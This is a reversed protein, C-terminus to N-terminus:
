ATYSKCYEIADNVQKLTIDYSSAIFTKPEKKQYLNFITKPFLNTGKITPQGFQHKPDVVVSNKKGMPYLREALNNKDFDLKNM